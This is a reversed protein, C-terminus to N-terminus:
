LDCSANIPQFESRQSHRLLRPLDFTSRTLNQNSLEETFRGAIVEWFDRRIHGSEGKGTGMVARILGKILPLSLSRRRQRPFLNALMDTSGPVVERM